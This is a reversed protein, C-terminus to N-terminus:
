NALRNFLRPLMVGHDAILEPADPSLPIWSFEFLIPEASGDFPDTEHHQWTRPPTTTCRLHFFYRHHIEPRGVDSMDRRQEGLFCDLVLNSLGTEECAERMAADEPREHENITGAPVQIGAQPALPHRFVLLQGRYTIYAFAKRRIALM